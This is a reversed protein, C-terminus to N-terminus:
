LYTCSLSYTHAHHLKDCIKRLPCTKADADVDFFGDMKLTAIVLILLQAKPVARPM